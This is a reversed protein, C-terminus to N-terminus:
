ENDTYAQGAGILIMVTFLDYTTPDVKSVFHQYVLVGSYIVLCIAAMAQIANNFKKM